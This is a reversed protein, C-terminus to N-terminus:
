VSSRGHTRWYSVKKCLPDFLRPDRHKGKGFEDCGQEDCADDCHTKGDCRYKMPICKKGPLCEFTNPLTCNAPCEEEDANDRCDQKGDCMWLSPVCTIGNGPIKCYEPRSCGPPNTGRKLQQLWEAAACCLTLAFLIYLATIKM